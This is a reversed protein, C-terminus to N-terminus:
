PTHGSMEESFLQCRDGGAAKARYMALDARKLLVTGDVGDRPMLSIGVSATVVFERTPLRVPAALAARIKRAVAAAGAPDAVGVLLIAFEDGGMRAVTDVERVSGQLRKGVVQLLADGADHGLTDNVRKFDDLDLYLLATSIGQRKAMLVAQQLRDLFLGRNALGTLSDRLALRQMHAHAERLEAITAELGARLRANAIGLAALRAFVALVSLDRQDFPVIPIGRRDVQVLGIVQQGDWLPACMGARVNWGRLSESTDFGPDADTFALAQGQSLVRDRLTRSVPNPDVEGDRDQALVPAFESGTPSRLHVEIHNSKEFLKLVGDAFDHLLTDTNAPGNTRSSFELLALLAERDFRASYNDLANGQTVAISEGTVTARDGPSPGAALYVRMAVPEDAAGLLIEDSDALALRGSCGEDVPYVMPGRRIRSGNTSHLDRYLVSGEECYIEGHFLSVHAAPLVVDNSAHRGIRVLPADFTYSRVERGNELIAVRM